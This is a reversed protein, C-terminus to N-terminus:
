EPEVPQTTAAEEAITKSDLLVVNGCNGCKLEYLRSYFAAQRVGSLQRRLLRLGGSVESMPNRRMSASRRAQSERGIDRASSAGLVIVSRVEDYKWAHLRCLPCGAIGKSLLWEEVIQSSSQKERGQYQSLNIRVTGGPDGQDRQNMGPGRSESSWALEDGAKLNLGSGLLQLDMRYEQSPAYTIQSHSLSAVRVRQLGREPARLLLSVDRLPTGRGHEAIHFYGAPIYAVSEITCDHPVELINHERDEGAAVSPIEGILVSPREQEPV